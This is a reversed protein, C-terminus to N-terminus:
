ERNVWQYDGTESQARRQEAEKRRQYAEMSEGPKADATSGAFSAPTGERSRWTQEATVVVEDEWRRGNLYTAPNLIFQTDKWGNLKRKAVNDLIAEIEAPKIKKWATRADKKAVKKPYASWFEDFRDDAKTVQSSTVLSSKVLSSKTTYGKTAEKPPQKTADKTNENATQKAPQKTVVAFSKGHKAMNGKVYTPCHVPWDHIVLRNIQCEDIFGASILSEILLSSSASPWELWCTIELDSFRGIAGDPANLSTFYWLGELIGIAQYRPVNLLSKLVSFKVKEITGAKM